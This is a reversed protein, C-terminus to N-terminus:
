AEAKEKFFGVLRELKSAQCKKYDQKLLAFSTRAEPDTEFCRMMIAADEEPMDPPPKLRLGQIVKKRVDKLTKVEKYPIAGDSFVEFMLVGYSWVDSKSSYTAHTLTEPALFRVPVKIMQKEKHLQGLMSLGFDSIKCVDSGSILCNRAAVDRHIVQQSELYEM